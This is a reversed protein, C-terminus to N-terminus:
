HIRAEELSLPRYENKVPVGDALYPYDNYGPEGPSYFTDGDAANLPAGTRYREVLDANGIYPIDFAVADVKGSAIAADAIARDYGGNGVIIGPFAARMMPLIPEGTKHLFHGPLGEMVELFSLGYEGMAKAATTFLAAPDSDDIDNYTNRPSLRVAVREPGFAKACAEVIDRLFRIRNEVSGGYADTRKNASDRLFQDILYGNAAHIQVGDFGADMALRAANGFDEAAMRIEDITMPHPTVCDMREGSPAHVHHNAALASPAWPLAGNLFAPHSVRGLFWLQSYIRSGRAHVADTIKRWGDVHEPRYLGPAGNWGLARQSVCVGETILLGADGRRACYEIMPESPTGDPLARGRTMPAMIIRNVLDINPLSLPSFLDTM